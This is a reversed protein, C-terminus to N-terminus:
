KDEPYQDSARSIYPGEEDVDMIDCPSNSWIELEKIAAELGVQLEPDTQKSLLSRLFNMIKVQDEYSLENWMNM